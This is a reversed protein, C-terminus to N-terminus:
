ARAAPVARRDRLRFARGTRRDAPPALGPPVPSWAPPCTAPASRPTRDIAPISIFWRRAYPSTAPAATSPTMAPAISIERVIACGVPLLTSGPVATRGAEGATALGGGDPLGSHVM